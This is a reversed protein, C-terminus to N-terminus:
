VPYHESSGLRFTAQIMYHSVNTFVKFSLPKCAVDQLLTSVGDQRKIIILAGLHHTQRELCIDFAKAIAGTGEQYL